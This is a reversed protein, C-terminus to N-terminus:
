RGLPQVITAWTLNDNEFVFTDDNSDGDTRGLLWENSEDIDKLLIPDMPKERRRRLARNSKIFVM